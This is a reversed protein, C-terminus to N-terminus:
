SNVMGGDINIVQGTVYTCAPSMLFAIVQAVENPHGFRRLPIEGILRERHRSIFEAPMRTEIIGPSVANVVGRTGLRKALSRTLGVIGGKAIAYAVNEPAGRRFALSTTFVMHVPLTDDLHEMVAGALHYANRLNANIVRDWHTPDAGIHPDADLIGALHVLGAIRAGAEAVVRECESVSDLSSQVPVISGPLGTPLGELAAADVDICCLRRDARALARVTAQGIGGAAGTILIVQPSDNM